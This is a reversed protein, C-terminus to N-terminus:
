KVPVRDLFHVLAVALGALSGVVALAAGMRTFLSLARSFKSGASQLDMESKMADLKDNMEKRLSEVEARTAMEDVKRGIVRLDNRMYRLHLVVQALDSAEITEENNM